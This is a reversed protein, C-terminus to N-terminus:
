RLAYNIPVTFDWESRELEDPFPLQGSIKEVAARAAKDLLGSGSSEIVRLQEIVGNRLVTFGVVVEGEQRLRVARRPYGKNTEIAQRLAAKYEEELRRILGTDVAPMVPPPATVIPEVPAPPPKVPEIPKVEPPPKPKLKPEPKPKLKPEPKPKLKPEPKPKPKPKPPPPPEVVIPEPEPEPEVEPEPEPEPLPEPEPEPQM